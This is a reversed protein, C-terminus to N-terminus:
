DGTVKRLSAEIEGGCWANGYRSRAEEALAALPPLVAIRRSLGATRPAERDFLAGISPFREGMVSWLTGTVIDAVTPEQTGLLWGAGSTIGGASAEFIAM